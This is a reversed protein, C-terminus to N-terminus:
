AEDEGASGDRGAERGSGRGGGGSRGLGRGKGGGLGKGMGGARGRGLGQGRGRGRGRGRGPPHDGSCRAICGGGILLARKDILAEAVIQRAQTLIRAFTARSVGMREAAEEQYLGERDALRLAELGDLTLCIKELDALPVGQPKFVGESLGEDVNRVRPPRPM